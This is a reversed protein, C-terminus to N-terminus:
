RSSSDVISCRLASVSAPRDTVVIVDMRWFTAESEPPWRWDTATARATIHFERMTMSSSGVAASPTAWVCCTSSSTLRRASCPSPTTMM